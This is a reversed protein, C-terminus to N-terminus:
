DPELWNEIRLGPVHEFHHVNGTVLTLKRSRAIVAIRLDPDDLRKGARELDAGLGGYVIEGAAIATACQAM